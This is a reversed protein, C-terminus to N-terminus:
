EEIIKLVEVRRGAEAYALCILAKINADVIPNGGALPRLGEFQALAEESM